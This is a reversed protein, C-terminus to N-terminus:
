VRPAYFSHRGVQAVKKSKGVWDPFRSVAMPNFYLVAGNVTRSGAKALEWANRCSQALPDSDDLKFSPIRNPDDTNFGSFQWARLVTGAVTGDSSYRQQMRNWITEAVGLKGEDPEGRAEQWITIIALTDDSVLRV